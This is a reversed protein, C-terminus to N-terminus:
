NVLLCVQERLWKHGLDNDSRHNWLLYYEMPKLAFPLPFIKFQYQNRYHQAIEEPMSGILQNSDQVIQFIPEVYPLEIAIRREVSIEALANDILKPRDPNDSRLIAVHEFGLYEELSIKKKKALPHNLGVICIGNDEFLLHKKIGSISSISKGIALDLQGNNFSVLDTVHDTSVVKVKIGPANKALLKTIKPLIISCVYDSMGITFSRQSTMPDFHQGNEIFSSLEEIIQNLRPVLSQAYDSLVMKNKERLLLEDKFIERLSSLNKSMAAQTIFLKKAANTVNKEQLLIKLAVLLNLNIRYLSIDM